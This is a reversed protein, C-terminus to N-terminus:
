GVELLEVVLLLAEGPPIGPAGREGYALEAPVAVRRLGGERMGDLTASWGEIWRGQGHEQVLPQGREWTSSVEDGSWTMVAYHVTLTAGPAVEDGDGVELDELALSDPPGEGEPVGVDPRDGADLPPPLASEGAGGASEGETCGALTLTLAAALTAVARWGQPGRM